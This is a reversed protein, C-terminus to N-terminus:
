DRMHKSPKEGPVGTKRCYRELILANLYYLNFFNFFNEFFDYGKYPVGHKIARRRNFLETMFIQLVFCFPM